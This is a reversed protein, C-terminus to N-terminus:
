VGGPAQGLGPPAGLDPWRESHMPNDIAPIGMAEPVTTSEGSGFFVEGSEAGAQPHAIEATAAAAAAAASSSRVTDDSINSANTPAARSFLREERNALMSPISNRMSRSTSSVAESRRRRPVRTKKNSIPGDKMRNMVTPRTILHKRTVRSLDGGEEEDVISHYTDDHLSALKKKNEDLAIRLREAFKDNFLVRGQLMGLFPIWSIVILPALIAFGVILHFAQNARRIVNFLTFDHGKALRSGTISLCVGDALFFVVLATALLVEFLSTFTLVPVCLVATIVIFLVTIFYARQKRRERLDGFKDRNRESPSLVAFLAGGLVLTGVLVYLGIATDVLGVTKKRYQTAAGIFMYAVFIYRCKVIFTLVRTNFSAHQMPEVQTQWWKEWSCSQDTTDRSYIWELWDDMDDRLSEYDLGQPNFLAPCYLWSAAVLGFPVNQIVLAKSSFFSGEIILLILLELGPLYHSYVSVNFNHM